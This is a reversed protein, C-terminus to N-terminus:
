AVYGVTYIWIPLPVPTLLLPTPPLSRMQGPPLSMGRRWGRPPRLNMLFFADCERPVAVPRTQAMTLPWLCRMMLDVQAHGAAKAPEIPVAWAGGFVAFVLAAALARRAAYVRIRQAFELTKKM